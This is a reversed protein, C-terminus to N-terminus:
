VPRKNVGAFTSSKNRKEDFGDNEPIKGEEVLLHSLDEYSSHLGGKGSPRISSNFKKLDSTATQLSAVAQMRHRDCTSLEGRLRRVVAEHTGVARAHERRLSASENATETTQLQLDRLEQNLIENKRRDTTAAQSANRSIGM